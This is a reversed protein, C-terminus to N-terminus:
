NDRECRWSPKKTFFPILRDTREISTPYYVHRRARPMM